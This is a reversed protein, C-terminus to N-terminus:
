YMGVLWTQDPFTINDETAKCYFLSTNYVSLM